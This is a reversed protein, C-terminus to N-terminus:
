LEEIRVEDVLYDGPHHFFVTFGIRTTGPPTSFVHALSRWQGLRGLADAGDWSYDKTETVAQGKDDRFIVRTIPSLPRVKPDLHVEANRHMLLIRYGTGPKVATELTFSGLGGPPVAVHLAHSGCWAGATVLEVKAEGNCFARLRKAPDDAPVDDFTGYLLPADPQEVFRLGAFASPVHFGGFTPAVATYEDPEVAGRRTRCVNLKWEGGPQAGLSAFPVALEASWGDDGVRVASRADASWSADPQGPEAVPNAGDYLAGGAGLGLHYYRASGPPLIFLEVNDEDFLHTEDRGTSPRLLKTGDPERGEVFLYLATADFALKARAGLSPQAANRVLHFPYAPAQRWVADTGLGDVAPPKAAALATLRLPKSTRSLAYLAGTASVRATESQDGEDLSQALTPAYAALRQRVAQRQEVASKLLDVDAKAFSSAGALRGAAIMGRVTALLLEHQDSLRALRQQEAESLRRSRAKDLLATAQDLVPWYAAVIRSGREDEKAVAPEAVDIGELHMKRLRDELLRYYALVDPGAAGYLGDYYRKELAAADVQGSWMLHALLYHGAGLEEYSQGVYLYGARLGVQQEWKLREVSHRTVPAILNLSPPGYYHIDYKGFWTALGTWQKEWQKEESWGRGQSFASNTAQLLFLNPAVTKTRVPPRVYGDYMYAGLYKNPFVKGVETAVANYFHLLRDTLVPRDPDGDILEGGDLKRCEDCECYGGGDNPSISYMAFDPHATFFDICAKVFLKVVEPNSTCVQGGHHGLYYETVRKGKILAYYEPHERGYTEAPLLRYWAHSHSMGFRQGLRLRRGLMGYLENQPGYALARYVFAPASTLNLDPLVITTQRPVVTGLADGWAFIVGLHTELLEYVGNMTGCHTPYNVKITAPDGATDEGVIHLDRGVTRLHFGEPQLEAAKVGAAESAPSVGLYVHPKDATAAPVIPLKAGSAQEVFTQLERAALREAPVPDPPLVIEYDSRGDKVLTVEGAAPLAVAVALCCALLSKVM